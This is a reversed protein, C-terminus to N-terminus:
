LRGAYGRCRRNTVEGLHHPSTMSTEM